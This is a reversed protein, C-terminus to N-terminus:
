QEALPVQVPLMTHSERDVQTGRGVVPVAQVCSALQEFPKQSTRLPTQTGVALQVLASEHPGPHVHSERWMQMGVGQESVWIHM